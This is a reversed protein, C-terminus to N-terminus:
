CRIRSLREARRQLPRPASCRGCGTRCAHSGHHGHDPRHASSRHLRQRHQGCGRRRHCSVLARRAAGALPEDVDVLPSLREAAVGLHALLPADWQLTRRDLLGSWAAASYSVRCRGFLQLELYEGLTVFRAAARWAAPMARRLWALRAPWYSTRLLCGTRDHVAAEDRDRRLTASDPANRTDAYTILRTLPRGAADLALFTAAMTDVAVGAIHAALPGARTLVADICRAARAVAADPDDESVGDATAHLAYQEQVGYAAIARGRGDYLLARTSSSGIDLALILPLSFASPQLSFIGDSM